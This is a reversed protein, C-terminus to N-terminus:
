RQSIQSKLSVRGLNHNSAKRDNGQSMQVESQQVVEPHCQINRKVKRLGLKGIHLVSPTVDVELSTTLVAVRGGACHQVCPLHRVKSIIFEQCQRLLKKHKTRLLLDHPNGGAQSAGAQM